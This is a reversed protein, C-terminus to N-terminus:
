EGARSYIAADHSSSEPSFVHVIEHNFICLDDVSEAARCLFGTDCDAVPANRRDALVKARGTFTDIRLTLHHRRADDIQMGMVVRLQGDSRVGTRIGRIAGGTPLNRLSDALRSDKLDIVLRVVRPQYQGVRVGAIYPDDPRVKGVLDRLQPSLELGDIDVVLRYPGETLFHHAALPRDSEITVRTYAQAPWVRVAVISAGHAIRAVGLLLVLSGLRQLARRRPSM